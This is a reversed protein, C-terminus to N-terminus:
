LKLREVVSFLEPFDESYLEYYYTEKITDFKKIGEKKIRDIYEKENM